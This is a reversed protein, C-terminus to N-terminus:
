ASFPFVDLFTMKPKELSVPIKRKVPVQLAVKRELKKMVISRVERKVASM